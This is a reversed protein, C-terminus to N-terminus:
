SKKTPCCFSVGEPIPLGFFYSSCGDPEPMKFGPRPLPAKGSLDPNQDPCRSKLFRTLKFGFFSQKCKHFCQSRAPNLGKEMHTDAAARWGEKRGSAVTRKGSLLSLSGVPYIRDNVVPSLIKSLLLNTQLLTKQDKTQRFLMFNFFMEPPKYNDTLHVIYKSKTM